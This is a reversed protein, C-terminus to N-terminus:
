KWVLIKFQLRQSIATSFFQTSIIKDDVNGAGCEATKLHFGETEIQFKSGTNFFWSITQEYMYVYIQAYLPM